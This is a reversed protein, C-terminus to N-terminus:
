FRVDGCEPRHATTITRNDGHRSAVVHRRAMYVSDEDNMKAKSVTDINAQHEIM